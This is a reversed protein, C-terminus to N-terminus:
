ACAEEALAEAALWVSYTADRLHLAARAHHARGSTGAIAAMDLALIAASDVLLQARSISCMPSTTTRPKTQDPKCQSQKTQNLAARRAPQRERPRRGEGDRPCKM